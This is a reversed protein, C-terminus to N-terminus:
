HETATGLNPQYVLEYGAEQMVAFRQGTLQAIREDDSAAEIRDLITLLGAIAQEAHEVETM